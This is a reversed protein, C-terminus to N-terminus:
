MKNLGIILIVGVILFLSGTIIRKKVEKHVWDKFYRGRYFLPSLPNAPINSYHHLTIAFCFCMVLFLSIEIM